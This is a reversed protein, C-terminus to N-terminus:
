WLNTQRQELAVSLSFSLFFLNSENTFCCLSKLTNIPPPPHPAVPLPKPNLSPFPPSLQDYLRIPHRPSLSLLTSSSLLSLSPGPSYCPHGHLPASSLSIEARPVAIMQLASGLNIIVIRSASLLIASASTITSLDCRGYVIFCVEGAEWGRGCAGRLFRCPPRSSRHVRATLVPPWRPFQSTPIVGFLLFRPFLPLLPLPLFILHASNLNTM